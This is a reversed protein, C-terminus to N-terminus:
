IVPASFYPACFLEGPYPPRFRAYGQAGASFYDASKLDPYAHM